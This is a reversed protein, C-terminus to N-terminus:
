WYCGLCLEGFRHKGCDDRCKSSGPCCCDCDSGSGDNCECACYGCIPDPSVYEQKEGMPPPATLSPYRGPDARYIDAAQAEMADTDLILTTTQQSESTFRHQECGPEVAQTWRRGRQPAGQVTGGTRAVVADVAAEAEAETPADHTMVQVQLDEGGTRQTRRGKGGGATGGAPSVGAATSEIALPYIVHSQQEVSLMSVLLANAATADVLMEDFTPPQAMTREQAPTAFFAAAAQSEVQERSLAIIDTREASGATPDHGGVELQVASDFYADPTVTVQPTSACESNDTGDATRHCDYNDDTDFCGAAEVNHYFEVACNTEWRAGAVAM